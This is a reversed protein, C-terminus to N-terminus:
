RVNYACRFGVDPRPEREGIPERHAVRLTYHPSRWSGGRMVRLQMLEPSLGVKTAPYPEFRSDTLEWVNGALNRLGLASQGDPYADVPAAFRYGDAASPEGGPLGHNALRSNYHRGWPFRRRDRGRAAREWEAESPLRGGAWECYRKADRWGIGVAPHSPHGLRVDGDSVVSPTCVNELVCRQYAGQSVETRDIRYAALYVRHAPQEVEFRRPECSSGSAELEACLAVAHALAQDDSGMEFWGAAVHVVAAISLQLPQGASVTVAFAGLLCASAAISSLARFM